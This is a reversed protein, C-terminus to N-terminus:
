YNIEDSIKNSSEGVVELARVTAFIAKKDKIFDEYSLNQIFDLASKAYELIDKFYHKNTRKM